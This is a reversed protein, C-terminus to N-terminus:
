VFGHQFGSLAHPIRVLRPLARTAQVIGMVAQRGFADGGELEIVFNLSNNLVRPFPHAHDLVITTLGPLLEVFFYRRAC